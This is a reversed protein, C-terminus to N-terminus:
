GIKDGINELHVTWPSGTQKHKGENFCLCTAITFRNFKYQMKFAINVYISYKINLTYKYWTIEDDLMSKAIFPVFTLYVFPYSGKCRKCYRNENPILLNTM